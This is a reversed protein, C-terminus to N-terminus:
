LTVESVFDVAVLRVVPKGSDVSMDFGGTYIGPVAPLDKSLLEKVFAEVPVYGRARDSDEADGRVIYRVVSGLVQKGSRKSTYNLHEVGLVLIEKTLM